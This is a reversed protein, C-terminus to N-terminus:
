SVLNNAVVRSVGPPSEVIAGSTNGVFFNGEFIYKNCNVEILGWANPASQGASACYTGSHCARVAFESVGNVFCYGSGQPHTTAICDDFYIFRTNPGSAWVGNGLTLASSGVFRHGIFSCGKVGFNPDTGQGLIHCGDSGYSGSWCDVFVLSAVRGMVGPAINIAYRDCQDFACSELFGYCVVSGDPPDMLLGDICHIASVHELFIATSGSIRIGAQPRLSNDIVINSIYTDNSHVSNVWIGCGGNSFNNWIGRNIFHRSYFTSQNPAIGDIKCGIGQKEMNVDEVYIRNSKHIHIGTSTAARQSAAELSLMRVGCEDANDFKILTDSFSGGPQLITAGPGAGMLHIAAAAGVTITANLTYTGEPFFVSGGGHAVADALANAIKQDDNAGSYALVNYVAGGKDFILDTVAAEAAPPTLPRALTFAAAGVTAARMM